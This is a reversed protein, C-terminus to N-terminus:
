QNLGAGGDLDGVTLEDEEAGGDDEGTRSASQPNRPVLKDVRDSTLKRVAHNKVEEFDLSPDRSHNGQLIGRTTSINSFTNQFESRQLNDLGEIRPDAEEQDDLM